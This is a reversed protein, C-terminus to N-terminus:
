KKEEKEVKKKVEEEKELVNKTKERTNEDDDNKKSMREKVFFKKLWHKMQKQKEKEKKDEVEARSEDVLESWTKVRTTSEDPKDVLGVSNKFANTRELQKQREFKNEECKNKNQFMKKEISDLRDAIGKMKVDNREEKDIADKKVTDIKNTLMGMKENVDRRLAENSANAQVKMDNLVRLIDDNTTM